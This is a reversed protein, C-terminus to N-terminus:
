DKYFDSLINKIDITSAKRDPKIIQDDENIAYDINSSEEETVSDFTNVEIENYSNNYNLLVDKIHSKLTEIDQETTISYEKSLSETIKEVITDNPFKDLLPLIRDDLKMNFRFSYILDNINDYKNKAKETPNVKCKIDNCEKLSKLSVLFAPISILIAIISFIIYAM